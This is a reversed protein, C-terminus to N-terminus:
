IFEAAHTDSCGRIEANKIRGTITFYKGKRGCSCDDEGLLIGNDETLLSHGPYSMPLASLVQVIGEEGVEAPMFDSERRVIVDSFISSHLYGFECEMSLTGTQEVMGYYDYVKEIACVKNLSDKFVQPSVANDILKKWGGGHLLIAQSLDPCYTSNKLSQYFYQWIMFTFGFILIKKGAYQTFFDDLIAFDLVMNDDLAYTVDRGFMSFGLIGAGRASFLARDKVVSASDIILMPLRVSGLFSQIIKALVKTQYRSTERDLYIKSVQQGSTGSSTMTKIIAKQNVSKLDYQKFLRVPLFPLESLSSITEPQVCMADLIKKYAACHQYHYATLYKLQAGLVNSKEQQALSFPPISLMDDINKM